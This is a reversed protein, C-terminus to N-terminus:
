IKRCLKTVIQRLSEVKNKEKAEETSLLTHM